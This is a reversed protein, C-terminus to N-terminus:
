DREAGDDEDSWQFDMQDASRTRDWWGSPAVSGESFPAKGATARAYYDLVELFAPDWSPEDVYNVNWLGSKRVCPHASSRGLWTDSAADIRSGVKSLLAIANREIYARDSRPGAGDRVDLCLIQMESITASVLKELESEISKNDVTGASQDGWHPFEGLRSDRRIIAAGVHSRFISSRHNGGGEAVGRHTRLRNWLTAKSNASVAHTGVRVVRPRTSCLRHENPEFFFYVGRGPWRRQDAAALRQLGGTDSALRTLIEYFEELDGSAEGLALAANLWDLRGGVSMGELPQAVRFEAGALRKVIAQSYSDGALLFVLDSPSLVSKLQSFVRDGWIERERLTADELSLDYPRLSTEPSVLGHKASLIYWREAALEAWM